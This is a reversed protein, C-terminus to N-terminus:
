FHYVGMVGLFFQGDSGEDDVIPSDAADGLLYKYGVNGSVSWKPNITYDAVMRVGIDKLEADDASYNPLTSTGRNSDDIQFYTEMYNDSAYTTSAGFTMKLQETFHTKYDGGLTVLYGDHEGSIDAAFELTTSWPGFNGTVFFGAEAAADVDEMRDVQDNDVDSREPRYQLLPGFEIKDNLLNWKLQNGKFAVYGGDEWAIKAFLLPVGTYDESGEYDPALGVGLGLAVQSGAAAASQCILLSGAFIAFLTKTTKKM